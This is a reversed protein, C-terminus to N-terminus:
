SLESISVFLSMNGSNATFDKATKGASGIKQRIKFTVNYLPM